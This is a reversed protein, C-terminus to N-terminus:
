SALNQNNINWKLSNYKHAYIYVMNSAYKSTYPQSCKVYLWTEHFLVQVIVCRTKSNSSGHSTGEGLGHYWSWVDYYPLIKAVQPM